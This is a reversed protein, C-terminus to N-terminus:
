NKYLVSAFKLAELQQPKSFMHLAAKINNKRLLALMTGASKIHNDSVETYRNCSLIVSPIKLNKTIEVFLAFDEINDNIGPMLLYKLRIQGANAAIKSYNEVNELVANFNDVGKIKNWTEKTGADMSFLIYSEVNNKLNNGINKDFIFCNTLWGARENGIITYVRERFPHATIEGSATEWLVKSSIMKMEKMYEITKFVLEHGKADTSHNYKRRKEVQQSCYICKSQCPAPTVGYLIYNIRSESGKPWNKECFDHCRTCAAHYQNPPTSPKGTLAIRKSEMIIENRRTKYNELTEAPNELLEVSLNNAQNTCCFNVVNRDNDLKGHFFMCNLELHECSRYNM